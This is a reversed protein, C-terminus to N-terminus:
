GTQCQVTHAVSTVFREMWSSSRCAQVQLYLVAAVWCQHFEDVLLKVVAQKAVAHCSCLARCGTAEREGGRM